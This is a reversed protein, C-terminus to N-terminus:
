EATDPAGWGGGGPTELRLKDGAQLRLTFKGPLLREQGQHILMNRGTYGPQGGQLGYPTRERRESLVSVTVPTLFEITRILGDGGRHRGNGGSGARLAYAEVRLPFAYELAEVPTNRTNSMHVHVGSAGDGQPGAGAGGGITEYYAFTSPTIPHAPSPTVTVKDGPWRTVQDSLSGGFTLNNMTGQSAAPILNPLAQALAGFVVDVLRQSTEVNGAAVAHPPHPDLLSGPPIHLTLPAFAGENMPLDTQLLALAVCRLCYAVASQVIAPVANLNGSVATGTGSFDVDMQEGAITIAACIPVATQGDDDLYDTFTFRGNPIQAVAARTMRAAYAILADAHALTDPLGYRAVIEQLRRAGIAHAATQAALDGDREAPTRVNRLILQWVAENRQGAEVLKIPPIIIGEQFIESSLPMSGPSMGGVDAHHARSAVFFHPTLPNSVPSQLSSIPTAIFIPSVLTIDPLHNGGQYPDNLIVVDGPHFPACQAIAAQVSAPMAGLHVPIHAAQALLRGDGLFVACSFDLREKINPSYAARGLTVGMEEAVSSFLHRFISLSAPSPINM